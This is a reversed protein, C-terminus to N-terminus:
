KLWQIHTQVSYSGKVLESRSCMYIYVNQSHYFLCCNEHETMNSEVRNKVSKM